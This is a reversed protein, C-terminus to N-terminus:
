KKKKEIIKYLYIYMQFRQEKNNFSVLLLKNMYNM